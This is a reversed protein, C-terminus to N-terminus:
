KKWYMDIFYKNHQLVLSNEIQWDAMIEKEFPEINVVDQYKAVMACGYEDDVFFEPESSFWTDSIWNLRSHENPDLVALRSSYVNFNLMERKTLSYIKYCDKGRVNAKLLAWEDDENYSPLKSLLTGKANLPKAAVLRPALLEFPLEEESQSWRPKLQRKLLITQNDKTTGWFMEYSYELGPIHSDVSKVNAPLAIERGSVAFYQNEVKFVSGLNRKTRVEQGHKGHLILETADPQGVYAIVCFVQYM